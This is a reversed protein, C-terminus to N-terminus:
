KRHSMDNSHPALLRDLRKIETAGVNAAKAEFSRYLALVRKGNETIRAGGHSAGGRSSEVLPAAFMSNLTEVLMWARKYSMSLRRGAAAISGTEQILELMDAKGPGLMGSSGFVIRIRLRTNRSPQAM